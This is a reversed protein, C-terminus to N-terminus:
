RARAATQVSTATPVTDAARPRSSNAGQTLTSGQSAAKLGIGVVTPPTSLNLPVNSYAFPAPIYKSINSGRARPSATYKPPRLRPACNAANTAQATIIAARRRVKLRAARRPASTARTSNPTVPTRPLLFDAALLASSIRVGPERKARPREAGASREYGEVEVGTSEERTIARTNM